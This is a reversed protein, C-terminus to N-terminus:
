NDMTSSKIFCFVNLILSAISIGGLIKATLPSIMKSFGILFIVCVTLVVLTIISFRDYDKKNFKNM